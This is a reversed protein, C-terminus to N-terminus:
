IIFDILNIFSNIFIYINDEYCLQSETNQYSHPRKFRFSLTRVNIHSKFCCFQRHWVKSKNCQLLSTRQPQVQEQQVPAFQHTLAPVDLQWLHTMNQYIWPLLQLQTVTVNCVFVCVFVFQRHENTHKNAVNRDSLQLQQRSDILVSRCNNKSWTM